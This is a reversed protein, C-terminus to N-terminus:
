HAQKDGQTPQTPPGPMMNNGNGLRLGDGLGFSNPVAKPYVMPPAPKQHQLLMMRQMNSKAEFDSKQRTLNLLKAKVDPRPDNGSPSPGSARGELEELSIIQHGPPPGSPPPVNM